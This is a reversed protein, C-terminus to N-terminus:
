TKSLENRLTAYSDCEGREPRQQGTEEEPVWVECRSESKKKKATAEYWATVKKADLLKALVLVNTASLAANTAGAKGIGSCVLPVGPPMRVISLLADMADPFEASPLAVGVIIIGRSKFRTAVAGPLQAAM